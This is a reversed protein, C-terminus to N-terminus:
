SQLQIKYLEKYIGDQKILEDHTGQQIIQGQNFVLILDANKITYLRHAIIFKTKNHDLSEIANLIDKETITDLASTSEDFIFIKANRLMGRAIMLRQRQGGSMVSDNIVTSYQDQLSMIFDHIQAKKAAQIVEEKTADFSGYKINNFITDHFVKPDQPILAFKERLENKNMYAINNQGILIEGKVNEILGLLMKIFTTKGSGSAGVLAVKTGQTIKLKGVHSFVSKDGYFCTVDKLSIDFNNFNIEQIPSVTQSVSSQSMDLGQRIRGIDSILWALDQAFDWLVHIVTHITEAVLFFDGTTVSGTKFLSIMYIFSSIVVICAAIGQVVNIKWIFFAVKTDQQMVENSHLYNKNLEFQSGNYVFVSDINKFTDTWKASLSSRLDSLKYSMEYTRKALLIGGVIWLAIWCIGIYGLIYNVQFLTICVLSLAFITKLFDLAYDIFIDATSEAVQFVSFVFKTPVFYSFFEYTYSLTKGCLNNVINMKLKPLMKVQLYDRTKSTLEYFAFVISLVVLYKYTLGIKSMDHVAESLADTLYKITWQWSYVVM